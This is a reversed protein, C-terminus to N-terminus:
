RRTVSDSLQAPAEPSPTRQLMRLGGALLCLVQTLFRASPYLFHAESAIIRTAPDPHIVQLQLWCVPLLPCVYIAKAARADREAIKKRFECDFLKLHAAESMSNEHLTETL